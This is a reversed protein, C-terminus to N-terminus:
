PKEGVIFTHYPLVSYAACRSFGGKRVQEMITEAPVRLSLPPGQPTEEKKWDIIALKGGNHLLRFAEAIIREPDELEHHLNIMYVLDAIGDALPVSSEEMRVPIVLDRTEPPLNELMWTIMVESIDCAYVKGNQLMRGFLVSFFGTGAGIDVLVRAEHPHVTKWITEPDLYALRAPDNLKALKRPDFKREEM